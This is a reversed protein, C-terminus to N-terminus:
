PLLRFNFTWTEEDYDISKPGSFTIVVPQDDMIGAAEEDEFEMDDVIIQMEAKEPDPDKSVGAALLVPWDRKVETTDGALNKYIRVLKWHTQLGQYLSRANNDKGGGVQIDPKGGNDTSDKRKAQLEVYTYISNGIPVIASNPTIYDTVGLDVKGKGQTGRIAPDYYYMRLALNSYYEETVSELLEAPGDENGTLYPLSAKPYLNANSAITGTAADYEPGLTYMAKVYDMMGITRSPITGPPVPDKADPDPDYKLYYTVKFQMGSSIFAALWKAKRAGDTDEQGSLPDTSDFTDQTYGWLDKNDAYIKPLTGSGTSYDFRAVYYFTKIDKTYKVRSAVGTNLDARYIAQAPQFTADQPDRKRTSIMWAEPSSSVKLGSKAGGTFKAWDKFDDTTYPSGIPFSSVPPVPITAPTYNGEFSLLTADIDMDEYVPGLDGNLKGIATLAYVAPIYVNARAATGFVNYPDATYRIGYQGYKSFTTEGSTSTVYAVPPDVTFKSPDKELVPPLDVGNETFTILVELGTLDPMAGEYSPNVPHKIVTLNKVTKQNPVVVPPTTGTDGTDGGDGSGSDSCSAFSLALALISLIVLSRRFLSRLSVRKEKLAKM